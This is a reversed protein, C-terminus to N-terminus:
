KELFFGTEKVVSKHLEGIDSQNLGTFVTSTEHQYNGNNNFKGITIKMVNTSKSVTKTKKM